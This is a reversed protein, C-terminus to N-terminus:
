ASAPAAGRKEDLKGAMITAAMDKSEERYVSGDEFQIIPYKPQGSLREIEERKGRGPWPGPVLEYEIGQEDLAKQVRWCPHGGSKVWLNKCRYLKIAVAVGKSGGVIGRHARDNEVLGTPGLEGLHRLGLRAASVRQHLHFHREGVALGEPSCEAAHVDGGAPPNHGRAQDPGVRLVQENGLGVEQESRGVQCRIDDREGDRKGGTELRDLEAFNLWSLRERHLARPSEFEQEGRRCSVRSCRDRQSAIGLKSGGEARNRSLGLAGVDDEALRVCSRRRRLLGDPGSKGKERAACMGPSSQDCM